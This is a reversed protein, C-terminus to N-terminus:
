TATRSGGRPAGRRPPRPGAGRLPIAHVAGPMPGWGVEGPQQQCPQDPPKRM